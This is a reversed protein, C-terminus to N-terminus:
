PTILFLLHGESLGQQARCLILLASWYIAPMSVLDPTSSIHQFWSTFNLQFLLEQKPIMVAMIQYGSAFGYAFNPLENQSYPWSIQLHACTRNLWYHVNQFSSWFPAIKGMLTIKDFDQALYVSCASQPMAPVRATVNWKMWFRSIPSAEKWEMIVVRRSPEYWNYESRWENTWEIVWEDM